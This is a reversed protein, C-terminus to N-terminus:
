KLTRSNFFVELNNNKKQLALEILKTILDKYSIGTHEWLKPYMSIETFEPLTNLENLVFQNYKTLFFDIRAMGECCITKYAKVAVERIEESINKDIAAPILM